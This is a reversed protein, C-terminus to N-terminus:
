RSLEPLWPASDPCETGGTIRHRSVSCGFDCKSQVEKPGSVLLLHMAVHHCPRPQPQKGLVSVSVPLNLSKGSLTCSLKSDPAPRIVSTVRKIKNSVM